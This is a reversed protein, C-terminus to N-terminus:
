QEIATKGIHLWLFYVIKFKFKFKFKVFRNLLGTTMVVLNDYRCGTSGDIVVFTVRHCSETM